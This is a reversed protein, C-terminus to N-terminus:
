PAANVVDSGIGTRIANAAQAREADSAFPGILVRWNSGRPMVRVQQAFQPLKSRINAAVNEASTQSSFTGAQLHLGGLPAAPAAADVPAAAHAGAYAGAATGMPTQGTPAYGPAYTQAHNQVPAAVLRGDSYMSSEVVPAGYTGAGMAGTQNTHLPVPSSCAALAATALLSGVWRMPRSSAAVRTQHVVRTFVSM